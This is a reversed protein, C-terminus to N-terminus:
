MARAGESVHRCESVTWRRSDVPQTKGCAESARRVCFGWCIAVSTRSFFGFCTFDAFTPNTEVQVRVLILVVNKIKRTHNLPWCRSTGSTRGTLGFCEDPQRHTTKSIPNSFKSGM